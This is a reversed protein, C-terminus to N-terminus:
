SNFFSLSVIFHMAKESDQMINTEYFLLIKRQSKALSLFSNTSCKKGSSQLKINELKFSCM